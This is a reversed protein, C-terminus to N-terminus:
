GVRQWPFLRLWPVSRRYREYELGFTRVLRHEEHVSGVYFYITALVYVVFQNVTMTPSFWLIFISFVYLPHRMYAYFGTTVLTDGREEVDGMLQALGLFYLPNSQLVATALGVVSLFQGLQMLLAIPPDIVYLWRDPLTVMLWLVPLLTVLALVNYVFRWWRDFGPLHRRGWAKFFRAASLSHALAYLVAAAILILASSLSSM